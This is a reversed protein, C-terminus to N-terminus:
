GYFQAKYYIVIQSKQLTVKREDQARRGASNSWRDRQEEYSTEARMGDGACGGECRASCVCVCVASEMAFPSPIYGSFFIFLNENAIHMHRAYWICGRRGHGGLEDVGFVM